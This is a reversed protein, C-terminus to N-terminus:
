IKGVAVIPGQPTDHGGASELTVALADPLGERLLAPDLATVLTGRPDGRLLGAPIKRAGRILWLEYDRGLPAALNRGVLFAHPDGARLVVSASVEAGVSPALAVVRAGPQVLLAMAERSLKADGRARELDAVCQARESSQSQARDVAVRLDSQLVARDRLLWVLLLAAAVALAWAVPALRRRAPAATVGGTRAV